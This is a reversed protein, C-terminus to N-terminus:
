EKKDLIEIIEDKIGGLAIHTYINQTEESSHGTLLMRSEKSVKNEALYTNYLHRFTHPTIKSNIGSLEYYKECIQEIRRVSYRSNRNSEFLYKNNKGNLYIMLKDKLINGFPIIRDKGGKANKIFMTNNDWDIRIIQLDCFKNVRLGTGELTEFMLKHVPDDIASYFSVLEAQSPLEYLEQKKRPVDIECKERVSKFIFKLQGYNFKNRNAERVLYKICTQIPSKTNSKQDVFDQMIEINRARYKTM